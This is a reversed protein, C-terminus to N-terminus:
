ATPTVFGCLIRSRRKASMNKNLYAAVNSIAAALRLPFVDFVFFAFCTKRGNTEATSVGYSTQLVLLTCCVM